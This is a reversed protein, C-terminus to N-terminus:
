VVAADACFGFGFFPLGDIERIFDVFRIIVFLGMLFNEFIGRGGLTRNKQYKGFVNVLGGPKHPSAFFFGHGKGFANICHFFMVPVCWLEEREEM